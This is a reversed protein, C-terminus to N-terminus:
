KARALAKEALDRLVASSVLDTDHGPSVIATVQLFLKRELVEISGEGLFSDLSYFAKTGLGPVKVPPESDISALTERLAKMTRAM